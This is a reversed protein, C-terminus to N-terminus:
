KKWLTYVGAKKGSVLISYKKQLLFAKNESILQETLEKQATLIVLIGNPKLVRAFELFMKQYLSEINENKFMGWPPDTVIKDISHEALRLHIADWIHTEIIKSKAKIKGSIAKDSAIIKKYPFQTRALPISGYGAFPDLFIDTKSPESLFCLLWALEPRLEGKQLYKETSPKKTLRIGCFACGESRELFWIEFDPNARDVKLRLTQSFINELRELQQKQISILENGKSIIIRFTQEGSIAGSWWTEAQQSFKQRLLPKLTNASQLLQFSNNFFPLTIIHSPPSETVYVVLGDLKKTIVTNKTYSILAAEIVPSFGSIFTSFYLYKNTMESPYAKDM